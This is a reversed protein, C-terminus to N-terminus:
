SVRHARVNSRPPTFLVARARVCRVLLREHGHMAAAHLPTAGEHDAHDLTAGAQVLLRLVALHGRGAALQVPTRGLQDVSHLVGAIYGGVNMRVLHKRIADLQTAQIHPFRTDKSRQLV